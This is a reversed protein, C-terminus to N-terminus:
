TASVLPMVDGELRARGFVLQALRSQTSRIAGPTMGTFEKIERIFHPQDYYAEDIFEQWDGQGNAIANASRLARYKRVLFKPPAGYYQKCQREIQRLSLGTAAELDAIDPDLKSELWQDVMRIFWLPAASKNLYFERTQRVTIEVMAQFDPAARIRDLYGPVDGGLLDEMPFIKNACEHAPKSVALAWGAPLLGFGFLRLRPQGEAIIRTAKLRPGLVSAIPLATRPMGPGELWAEGDIRVRAQAIDAREIDNLVGEDSDFLYFASIYEALDAPPPLYDLKLM